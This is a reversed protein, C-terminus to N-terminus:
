EMGSVCFFELVLVQFLIRQSRQDIKETMGVALPIEMLICCTRIWSFTFM